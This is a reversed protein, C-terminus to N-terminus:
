RNYVIFIIIISIILLIVLLLLVIYNTKPEKLTDVWTENFVGISINAVEIYSDIVPEEVPEDIKPQEEKPNYFYCSREEYPRVDSDNNPNTCNRTAKNNPQCDTWRTCNWNSIYEITKDSSSGGGGGNNSSFTISETVNDIFTINCSNDGLSIGGSLYISENILLCPHTVNTINSYSLNLKEGASYSTVLFISYLFLFSFLFIQKMKALKRTVLCYM